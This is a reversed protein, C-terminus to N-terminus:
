VATTETAKASRGVAQVTAPRPLVEALVDEKKGFARMKGQEMWLVKQIETLASPRHAVMIVIAGRARAFAIAENLAVDGSADLNSNPEDLVILFPDGFLARALAIRQRQGVSLNRGNPGIRTEYGEPLRVILDHVAAANAAAIVAESTAQPDFRAINQAITGDFLEIDQPLYGIHRGLVDLDWQDLSAGDLRVAGRAPQMVGVLTRVLSSKGSGSPGIVGLTDGAALRFSIDHFLVMQKGPALAALSEVVLTKQPTPLVTLTEPPAYGALRAALRRWAQHAAVFGRWNGIVAEIPALARSSLITSAIIVGGTAKDMIVLWAGCALVLSQLLLRFTKSLTQLGGLRASVVNSAQRNTQTLSVWGATSRETMGLASIVEANRRCAEVYAYREASAKTSEEILSKTMRDTFLTLIILLVAGLTAVLGILYHFAYLLGLFLLVWPLDLFAMPGPGTLFARLKDLDRLTQSSKEGEAGALEANLMMRFSTEALEVEVTEGVHHMIRSRLHEIVAMFAFAVIIIVLLGVLSPTSRSPLVEDYVLLMFVAGTLMLINIAASLMFITLALRKRGAFISRLLGALAPVASRAHQLLKSRLNM